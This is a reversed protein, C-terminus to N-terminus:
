APFFKFMSHELNQHDNKFSTKWQKEIEAYSLHGWVRGGLQHILPRNVHGYFDVGDHWIRLSKGSKDLSILVLGSLPQNRIAQEFQVLDNLPDINTDTAYTSNFM